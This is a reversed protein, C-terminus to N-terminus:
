KEDGDKLGVSVKGSHPIRTWGKAAFEKAKALRTGLHPMRELRKGGDKVIKECIAKKHRYIDDILESDFRDFEERM